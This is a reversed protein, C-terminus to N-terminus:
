SNSEWAKCRTDLEKPMAIDEKKKGGMYVGWRM